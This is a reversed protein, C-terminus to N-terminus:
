PRKSARKAHQAAAERLLQEVVPAYFGWFAPATTMGSLSSAALQAGDSIADESNFAGPDFDIDAFDGVFYLARGDGDTRLTLAPMDLGSKLKSAFELVGAIQPLQLRAYVKVSPRARVISFWFYYPVDGPVGPFRKKGAETMLVRPAVDVLSPGGLVILHGDRAVLLLIPSHPLEEGPYQRAFERPLWHPVDAEDYPDAFVRGVWETWEVGFVDQMQRRQEPATPECFANFEAMLLGGRAVFSSLAHADGDSLGGFVLATYDMHSEQTDIHKLDDQYVGYTDAIYIVDAKSRDVYALRQPHQRDDPRYGVYDSALQWTADKRKPTGKQAAPPRIKRHNLLWM